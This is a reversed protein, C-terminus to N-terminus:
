GNGVEVGLPSIKLTLHPNGGETGTLVFANGTSTGYVVLGDGVVHPQAQFGNGGEEPMLLSYDFDAKKELRYVSPSKDYFYQDGYSQITHGSSYVVQYKLPKESLELCFGIPKVSVLRSAHILYFGSNGSAESADGLEFDFNFNM